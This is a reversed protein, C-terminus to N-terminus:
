QFSIFGVAMDSDIDYCFPRTLGAGLACAGRACQLRTNNYYVHIQSEFDGCRGRSDTSIYEFLVFIEVHELVHYIISQMSKNPHGDIM